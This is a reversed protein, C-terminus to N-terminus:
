NTFILAQSNKFTLCFLSSVEYKCYIVRLLDRGCARECVCLSLLLNAKSYFDFIAVGYTVCFSQRRVDVSYPYSFLDLGWWHFDRLPPSGGSQIMWDITWRSSSSIVFGGCKNHHSSPRRINNDNRSSNLSVILILSRQKLDCETNSSVNSTPSAIYWIADLM